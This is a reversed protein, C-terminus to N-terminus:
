DDCGTLRDIMYNNMLFIEEHGVLVLDHDTLEPVMFRYQSVDKRGILAM